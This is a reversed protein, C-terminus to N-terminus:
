KRLIESRESLEVDCSASALAYPVGTPDLPEGNRDLPLRLLRLQAAMERWVAPCRRGNRAQRDRLARRLADREDLSQLQVLRRVALARMQEDDSEYLRRYIERATERSGGQASMMGAMLNMWGPAGPVQMGARYAETAESYRGQQWYIYGLYSHLRWARPNADIGKRTLKIAAEVDFAPLVIAGYQYPEIFRPDLTTSTDLLPALLKLKLPSLDDIQYRGEYADAKRGVYQLARLWYWDAVLGNFGLSLRRVTRANVYLEEAQQRVDAAPRRADMWRVLAAASGLGLVILCLLAADRASFRQLQRKSLM